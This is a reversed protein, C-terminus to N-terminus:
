ITQTRYDKGSYSIALKLLFFVFIEFIGLGDLSNVRQSEIQLSKWMNCYLNLMNSHRDTHNKEIERM